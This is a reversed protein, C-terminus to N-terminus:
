GLEPERVCIFKPFIVKNTNKVKESFFDEIEVVMAAREKYVLSEMDEKVKAYSDSVEAIIFNLFILCGMLFVIVWLVWYARSEGGTLKDLQTFDFNGVAIQMSNIFSPFFNGLNSYEVQPNKSLVNLAMAFFVHLIMFFTMFIRLDYISTLIMTTIISFKPNIRFFFFLKFMMVLIIVVYLSVVSARDRHNLQLYNNVFGGFINIM